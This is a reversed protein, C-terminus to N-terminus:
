NATDQFRAWKGEACMLGSEGVWVASGPDTCVDALQWVDLFILGSEGDLGSKSEPATLESQRKTSLM